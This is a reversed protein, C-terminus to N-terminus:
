EPNRKFAISVTGRAVSVIGKQKKPAPAFCHQQLWLNLKTQRSTCGGVICCTGSSM